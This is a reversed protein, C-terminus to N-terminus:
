DHPNPDPTAAVTSGLSDASANLRATLARIQSTQDLQDLIRTILARTDANLGVVVDVREPFFLWPM